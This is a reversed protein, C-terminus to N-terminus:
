SMLSLRSEVQELSPVRLNVSAYTNALITTLIKWSKDTSVKRFHNVNASTYLIRAHIAIVRTPYDTDFFEPAHRMLTSSSLYIDGAKQPELVETM